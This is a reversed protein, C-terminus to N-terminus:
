LFHTSYRQCLYKASLTEVLNSSLISHSPDEDHQLALLAELQIDEVWARYLTNDYPKALSGAEFLLKQALVTASMGGASAGTLVDIFIKSEEPAASNHQGIADVIEYLVGAEYSGLSVAGAVTVALRYPMGNSRKGPAIRLRVFLRAAIVAM